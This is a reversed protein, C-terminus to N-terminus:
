CTGESPPLTGALCQGVLTAFEQQGAALPHFSNIGPITTGANSVEENIVGNIWPAGSCIEHGTFAPAPAGRGQIHGAQRSDACPQSALIRFAECVHSDRRCLRRTM